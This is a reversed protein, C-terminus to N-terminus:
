EWSRERRIPDNSKGIKYMLKTPSYGIYVFGEEKGTEALQAAIKRHHEPPIRNGEEDVVFTKGNEGIKIRFHEPRAM